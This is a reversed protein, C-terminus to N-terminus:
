EKGGSLFRTLRQGIPRASGSREVVDQEYDILRRFVVESPWSAFRYTFRGGREAADIRDLRYFRGEFRLAMGISWGTKEERAQLVLAWESREGADELVNDGSPLRRSRLRADSRPRRLEGVLQAATALRRAPEKELCQLVLRELWVPV